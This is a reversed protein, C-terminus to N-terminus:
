KADKKSFVKEWELAINKLSFRERVYTASEGIKDSIKENLAILEMKNFLATEDNMPILFGNDSNNIVLATGGVPCDTCICPIGIAMAEIMSNSIGEYNSTSIYMKANKIKDLVDPMFGMLHVHQSIDLKKIQNEIEKRLEGEGYIELIYDKHLKSFSAFTNLLLSYNKQKTLRGIAVIKKDKVGKYPKVEDANVPNAIVAIKKQLRQPYYNRILETQLIIGAANEYLLLEISKFLKSAHFKTDRNRPDARESIYIPLDVGINALLSFINIDYMFSVAFDYNGSKLLKRLERFRTMAINIKNTSHYHIKIVKVNSAVCYTDQKERLLVMSVMYGMNAFQNALMAM